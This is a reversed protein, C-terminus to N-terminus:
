YGEEYNPKFDNFHKRCFKILKLCLKENNLEESGEDIVEWGPHLFGTYGDSEIYNIYYTKGKHTITFSKQIVTQTLKM